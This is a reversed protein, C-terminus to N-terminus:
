KTNTNTQFDNEVRFNHNKSSKCPPLIAQPQFRRFKWMQYRCWNRFCLSILFFFLIFFIDSIKSWRYQQHTIQLISTLLHLGRTMKYIIRQLLVRGNSVTALSFNERLHFRKISLISHSIEQVFDSSFDSSHKTYLVM